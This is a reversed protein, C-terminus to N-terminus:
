QSFINFPFTVYLVHKPGASRYQNVNGLSADPILVFYGRTGLLIVVTLDKTDNQSLDFQPLSGVPTGPIIPM